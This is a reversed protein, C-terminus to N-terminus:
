AHGGGWSKETRTQASAKKGSELGRATNERLKGIGKLHKDGVGNEHGRLFNWGSESRSSSRQTSINDRLTKWLVSQKYILYM